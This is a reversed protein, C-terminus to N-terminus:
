KFIDPLRAIIEPDWGELETHRATPVLMPHLKPDAADQDHPTLETHIYLTDLGATQAGGIDTNRDNGVMLCHKRDLKHECILAEFFRRDPKRCMHDSSIYVGDFDDLLDLYRLEYETFARQANSLLWVRCGQDRLHALVEKVRPYLRIYELSTIRFLQAAHFALQGVNQSIGKERFLDEMVQEFPIDPFCEYSQGVHAERSRITATFQEKLESPSYVAGHFGFYYATKEWVTDNEETHIDVLTGYLDFILDTYRM